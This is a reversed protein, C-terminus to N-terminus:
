RPGKNVLMNLFFIKYCAFINEQCDRGPANRAVCNLSQVPIRESGESREILSTQASVIHQLGKNVYKTHVTDCFMTDAIMGLFSLHASSVLLEIM